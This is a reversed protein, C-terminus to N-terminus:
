MRLKAGMLHMTIYGVEDHPIEMSLVKELDVILQKAITYEKTGAIQKMYTADFHINDGAKIREIALALHVILGIYASDALEYPLKEKVKEVTQEILQLREPKVLGLLRTAIINHRQDAQQQINEKLFSVF